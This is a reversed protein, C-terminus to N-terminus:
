AALLPKSLKEFKAPDSQSLEVIRRRADSPLKGPLEKMSKLIAQLVPVAELELADALVSFAQQRVTAHSNGLAALAAAAEKAAGTRTSALARAALTVADAARVGVAMPARSLIELGTTV